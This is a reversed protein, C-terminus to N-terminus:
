LAGALGCCFFTVPVAQKGVIMEVPVEILAIYFGFKAWHLGQRKLFRGYGHFHQRLQSRTSRDTDIANTSNFEFSSMFLAMAIGMAASAGTIIAIKVAAKLWSQEIM